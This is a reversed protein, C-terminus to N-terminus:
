VGPTWNKRQHLLERLPSTLHSRLDAELLPDGLVYEVFSVMVLESMRPDASTACSTLLEITRETAIANRERVGERLHPVLIDGVVIHAPIQEEEWLDAVAAFRPALEPLADLVDSAFREWTVMTM